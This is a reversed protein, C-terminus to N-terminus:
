LRKLNSQHNQFFHQESFISLIKDIAKGVFGKSEENGNEKLYFSINSQNLYENIEDYDNTMEKFFDDSFYEM